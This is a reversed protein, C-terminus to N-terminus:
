GPEPPKRRLGRWVLACETLYHLSVIGPNLSFFAVPAIWYDVVAVLM